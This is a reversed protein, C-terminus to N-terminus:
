LRIDETGGESDGTEGFTEGAVAEAGIAVVGEEAAERRPVVGAVESGRVVATESTAARSTDVCVVLVVSAMSVVDVGMGDEVDVM